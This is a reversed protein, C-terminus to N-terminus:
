DPSSLLLQLQRPAANTHPPRPRRCLAVDDLKLTSSRSIIYPLPYSGSTSSPKSRATPVSCASTLADPQGLIRNFSRPSYPWANAIGTASVATSPSTSPSAAGSPSGGGPSLQATQMASKTPLLGIIVLLMDDPLSSIFDLSVPHPKPELRRQKNAAEGDMEVPLSAPTCTHQHTNYAPHARSCGETCAAACHHITRSHTRRM